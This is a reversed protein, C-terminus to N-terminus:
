CFAYQSTDASTIFTCWQLVNFIRVIVWYGTKINQAKLIEYTPANIMSILVIKSNQWLRLNGTQSSNQILEPKNRVQPTHPMNYQHGGIVHQRTFRSNNTKTEMNSFMCLISRYSRDVHVRGDVKFILCPIIIFKHILYGWFGGLCQSLANDVRMVQAWEQM